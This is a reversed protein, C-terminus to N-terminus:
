LSSRYSCRNTVTVFTILLVISFRIGSIALYGIFSHTFLYKLAQKQVKSILFFKFKTKMIDKMFLRIGKLVNCIKLKHWSAYYKVQQIGRFKVFYDASHIQLSTRAIYCALYICVIYMTSKIRLIRMDLRCSFVDQGM